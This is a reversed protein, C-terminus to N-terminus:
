DDKRALWDGFKLDKYNAEVQNRADYSKWIRRLLDDMFEYRIPDDALEVNELRPNMNLNMSTYCVIRYDGAAFLMFKAHNQTLRISDLGYNTRMLTILDRRRRQFSMDLLFRVRHFNDKTLVTQMQLLDDRASTWTSLAFDIPKPLQETVARIIDILNFQGKSFGFIDFGPELTGVFESAQQRKFLLKLERKDLNRKRRTVMQGPLNEVSIRKLNHPNLIPNDFDALKPRARAQEELAQERLKILADKKM